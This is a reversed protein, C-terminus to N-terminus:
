EKENNDVKARFDRRRPLQKHPLIVRVITGQNLASRISLDGGFLNAREELGLLGFSGRRALEAITEPVEFGIGNDQVEIIVQHPLFRVTVIVRGARAHKQINSLVEQIIRYIAIELDQALGVADGEIHMQSAIGQEQELRGILYQLAPILGLDELTLPRLDRSFQRISTIADKIMARVETLQQRSQESSQETLSDRTLEIRQGIAILTQITGDHLDRAIRKREEEQSDTVSAVYQQLGARYSSIQSVMHNFALGLETIEKIRSLDVRTNYDGAAVQRSQAVLRDLPQTIRRVAWLVVLVLGVLGLVLVATIFFLSRQVPGVVEAWPTSIVLGWGSATVPAYGVVGRGSPPAQTIHAEGESGARLDAVAPQASFDAGILSGDPHFIVRGNRDVLYAIGGTGPQLPRIFRGFYEVDLYFWGVLAGSFDGDGSNLPAALGVMQRGSGPEPLVDFFIPAGAPARRLAQIYPQAAYNQGVLEPRHPYTEVVQGAANLVMFEGGAAFDAILYEFQQFTAAIRDPDAGTLAPQEALLRLSQRYHELNESLKGAALRAQTLNHNQALAVVTAQMGVATAGVALILMLALPLVTSGVALLRLDQMKLVNGLRPLTLNLLKSKTMARTKGANPQQGPASKRQLGPRSNDPPM